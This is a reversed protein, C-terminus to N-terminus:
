QEEIKNFKGWASHNRYISRSGSPVYLTCNEFLSGLSNVFANEAVVPPVTAGVYLTQLNTGDFAYSGVYEASKGLRVSTLTACNQFMGESVKKLNDPLSIERLSSGAFAGRSIETVSEPLELGSISTGSFSNEGLKTIGSPLKYDGGKGFPFWLIETVDRNFLVGDISSFATNAASVEVTQLKPCDASPLINTIGASITITELNACRAFADRALVTASFPLLIQKLQECDSFLGTSVENVETFRIGDFTEGGKKINVGSLDVTKLGNDNGNEEGQFPAGLVARLFRFDDGNMDGTISITELDIAVSNGFVSALSGAEELMISNRTTFDLAEGKTEGINNSAFPILKYQTETLLGTVTIRQKGESLNGPALYVRTTAGTPVCFIECGADTLRTGGDDTVEFSLIVGTPGSSLPTFPTLSPVQNPETSFKKTASRVTATKTGGEVYWTYETGPKLGSLRISHHEAGANSVNVEKDAIGGDGYRIVM